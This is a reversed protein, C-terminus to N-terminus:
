TSGDDSRRARWRKHLADAALVAPAAVLAMAAGALSPAAHDLARAIPPVGLFAALAVLEALVAWLLLRNGFWGLQGPRRRESRCAFANAMQGVVVAAFSASRTATRAISRNPLALAADTSFSQRM